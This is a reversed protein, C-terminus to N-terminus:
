KITLKGMDKRRLFRQPDDHGTSKDLHFLHSKDFKKKTVLYDAEFEREWIPKRYEFIIQKVGYNVLDGYLIKESIGFAGGTGFMWMVHKKNRPTIYTPIKAIDKIYGVEKGHHYIKQTNWSKIYDGHKM